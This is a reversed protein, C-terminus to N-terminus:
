ADTKVEEWWLSINLAAEENIYEDIFKQRGNEDLDEIDEDPIECFFVDHTDFGDVGWKIKV